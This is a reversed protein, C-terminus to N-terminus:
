RDERVDEALERERVDEAWLLSRVGQWFKKTFLKAIASGILRIVAGLAILGFAAGIIIPAAGGALFGAAVAAGVGWPFIFPFFLLWSAAWNKDSALGVTFPCCIFLLGSFGNALFLLLSNGSAWGMGIVLGMGGIALSIILSLATTKPFKASKLCYFYVGLMVLPPLACMDMWRNTPFGIAYNELLWLRGGGVPLGVFMTYVALFLVSGVVTVLGWRGIMERQRDGM